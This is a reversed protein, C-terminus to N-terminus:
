TTVFARVIFPTIVDSDPDNFRIGFSSASHAAANTFSFDVRLRDSSTFTGLSLSTFSFTKAGTTGFSVSSSAASSTQITGASNIRHLTVTGNINANATSCFVSVTYNGTVSGSAGPHLPETYCRSVETSAAAISVSLATAAGTYEYELKRNFDAGGTLDSNNTTMYYVRAM